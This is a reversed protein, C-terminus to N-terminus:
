TAGWPYDTDDASTQDPQGAAEPHRDVIDVTNEILQQSETLSFNIPSVTSMTSARETAPTWRIVRDGGGAGRVRQKRWCLVNALIDGVRRSAAMDMRHPDFGLAKLVHETTVWPQGECVEAIKPIWPDHEARMAQEVRARAEAEGTLHWPEGRQYADVAEAWLQDRDARLRQPASRTVRVPWFRRGGTSDRLYQDRNTTAAFVCRRPVVIPHRGWPPRYEDEQMTLFHKIREVEGKTMAALEGLEHIWARGAIMAAEKTGLDPMNDSFWQDGTLARLASSKGIGQSGELVLVHDAKCGPQLARAVASILWARGVAASYPTEEVGLYETLWRGIRPAGDWRLTELYAALPNFKNREAMELLAAGVMRDGFVVGHVHELHMTARTVDVDGLRRPYPGQSYWAPASILVASNQQVDFALARRTREDHRLLESCAQPTPRLRRGGSEVAAPASPAVPQAARAPGPRQERAPRPNAMGARLGSDLTKRAEADELGASAAAAALEARAEHELLEGTAVLQGVSFAASNLTHNREGQQAYSVRECERSLASLGYRSSGYSERRPAPMPAPQRPKPTLAERVNAPLDLIETLDGVDDWTYPRQTEPHISPPALVYGGDGRTDVGPGLKSASNGWKEGDPRRYYYHKGGSGTTVSLSVPLALAGITEAGGDDEDIVYLGSATGTAIAVNADPWKRWWQRITSADTTASKCGHEVLPVKGHCPFVAWGRAAYELAAKLIGGAM